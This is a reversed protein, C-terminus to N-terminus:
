TCPQIHAPTSTSIYDVSASVHIKVYGPKPVGVFYDRGAHIYNSSHDPNSCENGAYDEISLNLPPRYHEPKTDGNFDATATL